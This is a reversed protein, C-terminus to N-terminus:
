FSRLSSVTEAPQLNCRWQIILTLMEMVLDPEYESSKELNLSLYESLGFCGLIREIYLDPPAFAACFQLLFLDSELGESLSPDLYWHASLMANVDNESWMGACVQACFVRIWLPHEMISASFGHPRCGLLLKGFIDANGGCRRLFHHLLMSLIRHLPNHVSIELTSVDYVTEPWELLNLIGLDLHQQSQSENATSDYIRIWKVIARLCEYTLCIASEPLQHRILDNNDFAGDVLLSNIKGIFRVVEFLQYMNNVEDNMNNMEDNVNATLERKSRNMGQVFSLLRFWTRLLDRVMYQPVTAHSIVLKIDEVVRITIENLDSWKAIELYGDKGASAIFIDELCAFLTALLNHEEVLRPILAPTPFIHMSFRSLLPYKRFLTGDEEEIIVKVVSPYYKIFERAFEYKFSHQGLIEILLEHLKKLVNKRLFRESKILFELLGVSSIVNKSISTRLTQSQKSFQLLMTIIADSMENAYHIIESEGSIADSLNNKWLKFLADLVPGVSNAIMEDRLPHINGKHESCFGEPKWKSVDGCDCSGGRFHTVSYDHGSHDGNQFCSACISSTRDVECTTCKYVIDNNSWVAACIDRQGVSLKELSDTPDNEFMLWKIWTTSEQFDNEQSVEEHSPLISSVLGPIRSKNEKAFAITGQYHLYNEPVGHLVLRHIVRKLSSSDKDM